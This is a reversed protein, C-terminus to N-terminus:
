SSMMLPCAVFLVLVFPSFGAWFALAGAVMIAFAYAFYKTNM